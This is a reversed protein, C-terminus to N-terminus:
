DITVQFTLTRQDTEDSPTVAPLTDFDFIVSSAAKYAHDETEGDGTDVTNDDDDAVGDVTMSEAVYTTNAPIADTVVVTTAVGTGSNHVVITYTLTTGPAANNVDGSFYETSGHTVSKVLTLVPATCTASATDTGTAVVAPTEAAGGQSTATFTTADTATDATGDPITGVAIFYAVGGEALSGTETVAGASVESADLIGDNNADLYFVWTVYTSSYSLSFNDSGNGDNTVTFDFEFSDGPDGTFDDDTGPTGVLALSVGYTQDVVVGGSPFNTETPYEVPYETGSENEYTFSPNNAPFDIPDDASLGADVVADFQVCITASGALDGLLLTLTRTTTNYYYNTTTGDIEITLYNNGGDISVSGTALTTNSPMQTEFVGNYATATGSNTFCSEYTISEGPAPTENSIIETTGNVAAAQITTTLTIQANTTGLFTSTATLTATHVDGADGGSVDTVKILLNYTEGLGLTGTSSTILDVGADIDGEGDVDHYIEISYTGGTPVVAGTAGLTFTDDGNGTNTVTVAYLTSSMSQIVDNQNNGLSVGAVQSVTTSVVLSSVQAMDNGNADKYNGFAQNTITAGAPTIASATAVLGLLVIAVTLFRRPKM